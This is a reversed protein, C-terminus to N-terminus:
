NPDELRAFRGVSAISYLDKFIEVLYFSVHSFVATPRLVFSSLAAVSVRDKLFVDFARQQNTLALKIDSDEGQRYAV